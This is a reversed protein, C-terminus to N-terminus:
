VSSLLGFVISRHLPSIFCSQTALYQSLVFSNGPPKCAAEALSNETESSHAERKATKAKPAEAESNEVSMITAEPNVENQGTKENLQYSLTTNVDTSCFSIYRDMIM